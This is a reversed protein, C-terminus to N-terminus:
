YVPNFRDDIRPELNKVRQDAAYSSLFPPLFKINEYISASNTKISPGHPDQKEALLCVRGYEDAQTVIATTNLLKIKRVSTNRARRSAPNSRKKSM